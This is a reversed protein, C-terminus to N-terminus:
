HIGDKGAGHQQKVNKVEQDVLKYLNIIKNRVVALVIGQFVDQRRQVDQWTTFGEIVLQNHLETVMGEWDLRNLDPPLEPIGYETTEADDKVWFAKLRGGEGEIIVKKM